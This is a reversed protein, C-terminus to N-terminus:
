LEQLPWQLWAAVSILSLGEEARHLTWGDPTSPAALVRSPGDELAGGLSAAPRSSGFHSSRPM